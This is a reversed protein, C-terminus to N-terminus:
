PTKNAQKYKRSESSLLAHLMDLFYSPYELLDSKSLTYLELTAVEQMLTLHMQFYECM